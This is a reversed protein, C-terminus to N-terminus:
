SRLRIEMRIHLYKILQRQSPQASVIQASRSRNLDQEATWLDHRRYTGRGLIPRLRIKKEEGHKHRSLSGRKERIAMNRLDSGLRDSGSQRDATLQCSTAWNSNASDVLTDYTMAIAVKSDAFHLVTARGPGSLSKLHRSNPNKTSPLVFLYVGSTQSAQASPPSGRTQLEITLEAQSSISRWRTRAIFYSWPRNEVMSGSETLDVVKAIRHGPLYQAHRIEANCALSWRM